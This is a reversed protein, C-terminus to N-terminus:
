RAVATKVQTTPRAGPTAPGSEIWAFVLENGQRALRPYGSTRSSGIDAIKTVPGRTGSADIRRMRFETRRDISEIWTAVASGDPMLEVDVRGLSATDDVRIPAAFTRGADKSFAVFVQGPEVKGTFWAIVVDRGRASLMPGNVPCGSIKWNDNHVAKPESWKGNELRSVYIDRIEDETRNRFAAIVGDSTVAGTTPCCECVRTDIPMDATQKWQGDFAGYRVTMAGGGHGDHEAQGAAGAPTTQRGDLWVLGLGAGPVQFMSAFGHETKTGDHHPTFSESWTKGDDKSQALRVDYAYTSPGSKQLWHAALTGNELRMVSPVDAWNVFWDAGSAVTRPSSWGGTTRESFKLTAKPGQREVWSLLVGKSSVSLQPQGSDAAAPSALPQVTTASAQADDASVQPGWVAAAAAAVMVVGIPIIRM